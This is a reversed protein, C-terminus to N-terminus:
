SKGHINFWRGCFPCKVDGLPSVDAGEGLAAACNPCTYGVNPLPSSTSARPSATDLPMLTNHRHGKLLAGGAIASVAMTGGVAVFVMAIFSGFLKFFVPPSGFGDDGFWLFGIVTLGIGFFAIGAVAGVFRAAAPVPPLEPPRTM